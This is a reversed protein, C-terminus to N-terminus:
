CSFAPRALLNCTDTCSISVALTDQRRRAWDKKGSPIQYRATNTASYPSAPLSLQCVRPWIQHRWYSSCASQLTARTFNVRKVLDKWVFQVRPWTRLVATQRCHAHPGSTRPSISSSVQFGTTTTGQPGTVNRLRLGERSGHEGRQAARRAGDRAARLASGVTTAAKIPKRMELQPVMENSTTLNSKGKGACPWQQSM